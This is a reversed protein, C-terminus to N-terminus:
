DALLKVLDIAKQRQKSSKIAAFAIVPHISGPALMMGIVATFVVLVMVRPKLLQWYDRLQGPWPSALAAAVGATDGSAGADAAGPSAPPSFPSKAAPKPM